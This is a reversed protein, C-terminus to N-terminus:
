VGCGFCEDELIVFFSGLFAVESLAIDFVSRALFFYGEFIVFVGRGAGFTSRAM